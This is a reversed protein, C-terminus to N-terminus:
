RSPKALDISIDHKNFRWRYKGTNSKEIRSCFGSAAFSPEAFDYCLLNEDSIKWTGDSQLMSRVPTNARIAGQCASENCAKPSDFILTILQQIGFNLRYKLTAGPIANRLDTGSMTAWTEPDAAVATLQGAIFLLVSVCVAILLKM